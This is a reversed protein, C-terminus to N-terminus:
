DVTDVVPSLGCWYLWILMCRRSVFLYVLLTACSPVFGCINESIRWPGCCRMQANWMINHQSPSSADEGQTERSHISVCALARVLQEVLRRLAIVSIIICSYDFLTCHLCFCHIVRFSALMIAKSCIECVVPYKSQNHFLRLKINM